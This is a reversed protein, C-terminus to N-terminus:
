FPKLAYTQLNFLSKQLILYGMSMKRKFKQGEVTFLEWDAVARNLDTIKWDQRLEEQKELLVPNYAFSDTLPWHTNDKAFFAHLFTEM